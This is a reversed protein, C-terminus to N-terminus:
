QPNYGCKPCATQFVAAEQAESAARTNFTHWVVATRCRPCRVAVCMALFGIAGILTGVLTLAAGRAEDMMRCGGVMVLGGMILVAQALRLKRHQGTKQAFSPPPPPSLPLPPEGADRRRQEEKALDLLDM